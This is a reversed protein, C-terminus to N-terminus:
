KIWEFRESFNEKEAAKKLKSRARMARMKTGARTWGMRQAIEEISCDEFYMLTLVLRDDTQLRELLKHLAAAAETPDIQEETQPANINDFDEVEVFLRAKTQQKWFRYGVRTAIKNLWHPFPGQGRYSKLSFFAEVFVDQVLIECENKDRTFRWMLRAIQQEYAKVLRRYAEGDGAASALIDQLDNEM